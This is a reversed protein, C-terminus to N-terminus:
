LWRPMGGTGSWPGWCHELVMQARNRLAPLCQPPKTRQQSGNRYSCGRWSEEVGVPKQEGRRSQGVWTSQGRPGMLPLQCVNPKSAAKSSFFLCRGLTGPAMAPGHGHVEANWVGYGESRLREGCGLHACSM